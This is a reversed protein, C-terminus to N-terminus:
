PKLKLAATADAVVVVDARTRLSTAPISVGVTDTLTSALIDAKAAGNVLLMVQKAQLLDGLGLTYATRPVAAESGWYAAGSKITEPTLAILRTPSDFASGPENMGLHGNAGLGLVAIDVPGSTRLFNQIRAIEQVPNAADSQFFTRNAVPIGVRDLFVKTLWGSFLRADNSALGAYEDLALFRMNDWLDRRGLYKTALVDYMGLPTNGTPLVVLPSKLKELSAIFFSASLEPFAVADAAIRVDPVFLASTGTM